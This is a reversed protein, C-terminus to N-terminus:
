KASVLTTEDVADAALCATNFQITRWHERSLLPAEPHQVITQMRPRMSYMMANFTRRAQRSWRNWTKKAVKHKNAIPRGIRHEITTARRNTAM